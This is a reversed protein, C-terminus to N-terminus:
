SINPAIIGGFIRFTEQIDGLYETINSQITRRVEGINPNYETYESSYVETTNCNHDNLTVMPVM